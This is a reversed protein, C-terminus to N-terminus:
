RGIRQDWFAAAALCMLDALTRELRGALECTQRGGITSLPVTTDLHTSASLVRKNM